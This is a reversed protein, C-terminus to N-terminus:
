VRAFRIGNIWIRMLYKPIIYKFLFLEWIIKKDHLILNGYNLEHRHNKLVM